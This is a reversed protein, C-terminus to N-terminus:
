DLRIVSSALNAHLASDKVLLLMPLELAVLSVLHPGLVQSTHDQPAHVVFNRLLKM